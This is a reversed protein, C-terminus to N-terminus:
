RDRGFAKIIINKYCKGGRNTNTDSYERMYAEVNEKIGNMKENSLARFGSYAPPRFITYLHIESPKIKCYAKSLAKLDGSSINTINVGDKNGELLLTQIILRKKPMEEYEIGSNVNKNFNNVKEGLITLGDIIESISPMKASHIPRNIQEFTPQIACDLKAIIDDAELLIDIVGGTNDMTTPILTTSNTFVGIRPPSVNPQDSKSSRVSGLGLIKRISKIVMELGSSLTPEGLYGITISDLGREIYRPLINELEDFFDDDLGIRDGPNMKGMKPTKGIECYVCDLTCKKYPPFALLDVGLSTGLRKSNHPGYIYM